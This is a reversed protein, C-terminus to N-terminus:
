TDPRKEDSVSWFDFFNFWNYPAQRCYYALKNVYDAQAQAIAAARQQRETHTFDALPEFYLDYHHNSYLGTMFIVRQKLATALRFPGLPFGAPKGLFDFNATATHHLGRDALIGIWHGAALRQQVDLMAGATGLPIIDPINAPNIAHLVSQIKQANDPYMLISIRIEPHSRAIAHLIEFSGLHAGMLIVGSASQALEDLLPKGHLTIHFQEIKENLLFIRDHLTTAFTLFHQFLDHWDPRRPLVRQLYDRSARVSAPSFFLFYAVIGYLLWRTGRRGFSLSLKVMIRLTLLSGREPRNQWHETTM